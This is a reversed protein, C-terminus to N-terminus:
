RAASPTRGSRAWGEATGMGSLGEAFWENLGGGLFYVRGKFPTECLAAAALLSRCLRGYPQGPKTDLTGGEADVFVIAGADRVSTELIEGFAANDRVPEVSQAAFSAYRLFDLPSAASLNILEYLPVNISPAARWAEFQDARRVDILRAGGLFAPRSALAAADRASVATVGRSRLLTFSERWRSAKADALCPARLVRASGRRPSTRLAGPVSCNSEM